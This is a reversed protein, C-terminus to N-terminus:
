DLVPVEKNMRELPNSSVTTWHARPFALVKADDM